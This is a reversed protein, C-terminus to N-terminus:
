PNQVVKLRAFRPNGGSSADTFVVREWRTNLSTVSETGADDWDVLNSSFQPVYTVDSGGDATRRVFEVTLQSSVKAVKPIGRTGTSAIMAPRENFIPDLNLAFEMLNPIGDGDFDANPGSISADARQAPTFYWHKWSSFSENALAGSEGTVSLIWASYASIRTSYFASPKNTPTDPELVWADLSDKTYLGGFDFVAANFSPGAPLERFPGDVLYNIAALRWLGNEMVFLGGGSDGSSLHCEGPIGPNNFDCYLLIGYTPDVVEDEVINRGWRKVSTAAGWRWGKPEGGVTVGTGRLTGRGFVSATAGVNAVGSSLPAYTPFPKAHDIEWIRLDVTPHTTLGITVYADGHLTFSSGVAGGIHKATIFHYPSIPVGLFAGFLGEYQWGSNDGPTSAHYQPDDSELSIVANSPHVSCFFLWAAPALCRCTSSTFDSRCPIM